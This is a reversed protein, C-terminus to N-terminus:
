LAETLANVEFAYDEMVSNALLQKCAADVKEHADTQDSAEIWLEIHKGMRVQEVGSFGLEQLAHRTAKGQPDLISPRLTITVVAKYKNNM